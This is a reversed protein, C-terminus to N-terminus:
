YCSFIKRTIDTIGFFHSVIYDRTDCLKTIVDMLIRRSKESEWGIEKEIIKVSEREKRGRDIDFHNGDV